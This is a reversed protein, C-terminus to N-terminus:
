AIVRHHLRASPIITCTYSPLPLCPTLTEKIQRIIKTWTNKYSCYSVVNLRNNHLVYDPGTTHEAAACM